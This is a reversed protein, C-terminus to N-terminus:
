TIHAEVRHLLSTLGVVKGSQGVHCLDAEMGDHRRAACARPHARVEATALMCNRSVHARELHGTRRMRVMRM